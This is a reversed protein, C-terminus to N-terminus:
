KLEGAKEGSIFNRDDDRKNTALNGILLIENRGTKKM